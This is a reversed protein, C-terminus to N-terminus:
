LYPYAGSPDDQPDDDGMYSKGREMTWARKSSVHDYKGGKDKDEEKDEIFSAPIPGHLGKKRGWM